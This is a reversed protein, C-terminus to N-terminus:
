FWDDIVLGSIRSFEQTNHTVLTAQNAIATAAILTDLPGIPTILITVQGM